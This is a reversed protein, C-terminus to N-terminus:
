VREAYKERETVYEKLAEFDQLAMADEKEIRFQPFVDWSNNKLNTILSRIREANTMIKEKRRKEKRKMAIEERHQWYYAKSAGLQKEKHKQYQEKRKEKFETKRALYQSKTYTKRDRLEDNLKQKRLIKNRNVKYYKAHREKDKKKQVEDLVASQRLKQEEVDQTWVFEEM